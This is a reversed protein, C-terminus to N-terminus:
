LMAFKAFGRANAFEPLNPIYTNPFHQSLSAFLHAGGGVIVVADLDSAGGLNKSIERKLRGLVDAVAEDREREVDEPKGFLKVTGTLADSMMRPTLVIRSKHQRSFREALRAALMESVDQVGVEVSTTRAHDICQGPLMVAIDTTRGGIDIVGITQEEAGERMSLDDNVAYDVWAALGEPYVNHRAINPMPSGDTSEIHHLLSKRKRFIVDKDPSGNVYYTFIPLGTAITLPETLLTPHERAALRLAHNVIARNMGSFPYEDFRASEANQLNDGVTYQTDDTLYGPHVHQKGGLVTLSGSAGARACSPISFQMQMGPMLCVVKTQAYGDDVAIVIEQKAPANMVEQNSM